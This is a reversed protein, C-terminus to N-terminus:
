VLRVLDRLEDIHNAFAHAGRLAYGDKRRALMDTHVSEHAGSGGGYLSRACNSQVTSGIDCAAATGVAKQFRNDMWIFPRFDRLPM